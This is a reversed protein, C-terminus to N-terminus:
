LLTGASRWFEGWLLARDNIGGYLGVRLIKAEFHPITWAQRGIYAVDETDLDRDPLALTQKEHGQSNECGGVAM